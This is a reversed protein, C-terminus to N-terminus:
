SYRSRGKKYLRAGGRRRGEDQGTGRPQASAVESNGIESDGAESDGVESDGRRRLSVRYTEGMEENEPKWQGSLADCRWGMGAWPGKGAGAGTSPMPTVTAQSARSCAHQCKVRTADSRSAAVCRMAM